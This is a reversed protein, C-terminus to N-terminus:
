NRATHRPDTMYATLPFNPIIKSPRRGGPGQQLQQEPRSARDPQALSKCSPDSYRSSNERLDASSEDYYRLLKFMDTVYEVFKARTEKSRTTKAQLLLRSQSPDARGTGRQCHGHSNNKLDAAAGLISYARSARITFFRCAADALSKVDKIKDIVALYPKLPTAGPRKSRRRTWAPIIITASLSRTPGPVSAKEGRGDELISKLIDRNQGGPDHLKGLQIALGPDRYKQALHRQCVPFFRHVSRHIHGDPQYRVSQKAGAGGAYVSAM